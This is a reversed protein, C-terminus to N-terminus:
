VYGLRNPKPRLHVLAMGPAAAHLSGEHIPQSGSKPQVFVEYTEWHQHEAVTNAPDAPNNQLDLRSIRPDLTDM